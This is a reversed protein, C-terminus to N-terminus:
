RDIYAGHSEVSDGRSNVASIFYGYNKTGSATTDTYSTAADGKNSVTFYREDRTGTTTYRRIKFATVSMDTAKPWGLTVSGDSNASAAFDTVMAPKESGSSAWLAQATVWESYYVDDVLPNGMRARMQFQYRNGKSFKGKQDVDKYKFKRYNGASSADQWYSSDLAGAMKWRFQYSRVWNDIGCTLTDDSATMTETNQWSLRMGGKVREAIFDTPVNVVVAPGDASDGTAMAMPAFWFLFMGLMLLWPAVLMPVLFPHRAQTLM